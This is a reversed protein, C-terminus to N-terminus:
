GRGRKPYSAVRASIVEDALPAIARERQYGIVPHNSPRADTVGMAVRLRWETDFVEGRPWPSQLPNTPEDRTDVIWEIAHRPSGIRRAPQASAGALAAKALHM